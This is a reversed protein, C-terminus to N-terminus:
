DEFIEEDEDERATALKEAILQDIVSDPGTVAIFHTGAEIEVPQDALVKKIARLQEAAADMQSAHAEFAEAPSATSALHHSLDDGTKFYPLHIEASKM